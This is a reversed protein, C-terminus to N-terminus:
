AADDFGFSEQEFFVQARALEPPATAMKLSTLINRIVHHETIFSIVQMRSNCRPCALIDIDYVRLMLKAFNIRYGSPKDSAATPAKEPEKQPLLSVLSKRLKSNSGFVGYYRVMNKRPPPVLAVLRELFENATLVISNTGNRWAKKFRVVIHGDSAQELRGESIPPRGMYRLQRELGLRDPAEIPKSAHLNFGMVTRHERESRHDETGYASIIRMLPLGARKGLATLYRLSAQYCAALLPEKKAFDEGLEQVRSELWKHCRRAIKEAIHRIDELTPAPTRVFRIQGDADEIFVGDTFVAHIHLNLEVASGFRQIFSVSGPQPKANNPGGGQQKAQRRLWAFISATFADLVVKLAQSDFALLFRLPMPVSLVWQRTPIHPIVNEVLHAAKESSRRALCSPCFGRKKCSFGVLRDFRCEQCYIRAFGHALIGCRLYSAFEDKIFGPVPKELAECHALFSNLNQQITKYLLTEEPRHRVYKPPQACAAVQHM